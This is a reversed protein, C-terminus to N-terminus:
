LNSISIRSHVIQFLQLRKIQSQYRKPQITIKIYFM